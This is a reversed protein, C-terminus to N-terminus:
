LFDVPNGLVHVKPVAREWDEGGSAAKRVGTSYDTASLSQPSCTDTSRRPSFPSSWCSSAPEDIASWQSIKATCLLTFMTREQTAFKVCFSGFTSKSTTIDSQAPFSYRSSIVWFSYPCVMTQCCSAKKNEVRESAHVCSRPPIANKRQQQINDEGSARM